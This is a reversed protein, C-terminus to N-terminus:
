QMDIQTYPITFYKSTIQDYFAIACMHRYAGPFLWLMSPILTTKNHEFSVDGRPDWGLDSSLVAILPVTTIVM